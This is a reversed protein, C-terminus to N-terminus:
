RLHAVIKKGLVIEDQKKSEFVVNGSQIYTSLNEFDLKSLVDKLEDMKIRQHKGVNIGRLFAVYQM